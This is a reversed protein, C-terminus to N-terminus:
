LVPTPTQAAVAEPRRAERRQQKRILRINRAYVVVGTSQGLVGVLDQRWGFYAFLAVGGVLSLWWFHVPVVSQRRHESVAWQLLMRGAFAAQGGLGVAIWLLSGWSNINLARFLWNEGGGTAAQYVREGFVRRLEEGTMAPSAWGDRFLVRFTPAGAGDPAAELVGRSGAVLIRRTQAGPRTEMHYLREVPGLVLWLGLLFVAGM